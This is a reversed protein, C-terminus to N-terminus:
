EAGDTQLLWAHILNAVENYDALGATMRNARMYVGYVRRTADRAVPSVTRESYDRLLTFYPTLPPTLDTTAQNIFYRAAGFHGAFQLRPDEAHVLAYWAVFNADRERAFGALHAKEHAATFALAFPPLDFNVHAELTLPNVFGGNGTLALYGTGLDGKL